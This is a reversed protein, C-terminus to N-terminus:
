SRNWRKNGKKPTEAAEAEKVDVEFGEPPVCAWGRDNLVSAMMMELALSKDNNAAVVTKHTNGEGKEFAFALVHHVVKKGTLSEVQKFLFELFNSLICGLIEQQDKESKKQYERNATARLVQELLTHQSM